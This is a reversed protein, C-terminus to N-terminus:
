RHKSPCSMLAVSVREMKSPRYSGCGSRGCMRYDVRPHRVVREEFPGRQNTRQENVEVRNQACRGRSQRPIPPMPSGDGDLGTFHWLKVGKSHYPVYVPGRTSCFAYDPSSVYPVAPPFIAPVRAVSVTGPTLWPMSVQSVSTTNNVSNQSQM